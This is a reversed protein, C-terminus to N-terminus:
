AIELGPNKNGWLSHTIHRKGMIWWWLVKGGLVWFLAWCVAVTALDALPLLFRGFISLTVLWLWFFFLLFVWSHGFTTKYHSSTAFLYGFRVLNQLLPLFCGFAAFRSLLPWIPNFTAFTPQIPWFCDFNALHPCFHFIITLSRCFHSGFSGFFPRLHVFTRLTTLLLLFHGFTASTTALLQCLHSFTHLTPLLRSFQCCHGSTTM